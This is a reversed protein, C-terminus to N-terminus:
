RFYGTIDVIVDSSASGGGGVLLTVQREATGAGLSVIGGAALTMGPGTWNITSATVTTTTGPLVAVYGANGTSTVTITFSIARAGQPIANPTTVAGTAVNIADKVNITRPAGQVLGSSFRSDFVRVPTMPVLSLTPLTYQFVAGVYGSTPGSSFLDVFWNHASALTLGSPFSMTGHVVGPGTTTTTSDVGPVSGSSGDDEYLGWGQSTAGSAYGYVDVQWLTAGAPLGLSAALPAGASNYQYDMPSTATVVTEGAVVGIIVSDSLGVAGVTAGPVLAPVVNPGAPITVQPGGGPDPLPNKPDAALGISPLSLLLVSLAGFSLVSSPAAHSHGGDLLPDPKGNPV